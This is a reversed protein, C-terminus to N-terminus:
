ELRHRPGIQLATSAQVRDTLSVGHSDKAAYIGFQAAVAAMLGALATFLAGELDFVGPSGAQYWVLLPAGVNVLFALAALLVGKRIGPTAKTTVAGVLLPLLITVTFQLLDWWNVEFAIM